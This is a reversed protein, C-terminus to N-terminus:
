TLPKLGIRCTGKRHLTGMSHTNGLPMSPGATVLTVLVQFTPTSGMGEVTFTSFINPLRSLPGWLRGCGLGQARHIHKRVHCFPSQLTVLNLVKLHPSSGPNNPHVRFTIVLMRVSSPLLTLPSPSAVSCVSSPFPVHRAKFVFPPAM